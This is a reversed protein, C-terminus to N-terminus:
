WGGNVFVPHEASARVWHPNQVSCEQCFGFDDGVFEVEWGKSEAVAFFFSSSGMEELMRNWRRVKGNAAQATAFAVTEGDRSVRPYGRGDQATMDFGDTMAPFGTASIPTITM